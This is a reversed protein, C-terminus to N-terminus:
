KTTTQPLLNGKQVTIPTINTITKNLTTITITKPNAQSSTLTATFNTNLTTALQWKLDSVQAPSINYKTKEGM